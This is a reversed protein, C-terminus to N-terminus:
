VEISDRSIRHLVLRDAVLESWRDQLGEAINGLGYPRMKLCIKRHYCLDKLSSSINSHALIRRELHEVVDDRQSFADHIRPRSCDQCHLLCFTLEELM